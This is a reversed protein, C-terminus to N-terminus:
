RAEALAGKIDHRMAGWPTPQQIFREGWFNQFVGKAVERELITPTQLHRVGVGLRDLVERKHKLGTYALLHNWTPPEAWFDRPVRDPQEHRLATLVRERPTM